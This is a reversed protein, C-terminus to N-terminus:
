DKKRKLFLGVPLDYAKNFKTVFNLL